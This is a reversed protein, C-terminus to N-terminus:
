QTRIRGCGGSRRKLPYRKGLEYIVLLGAQRDFVLFGVDARGEEGALMHERLLGHGLVNVRGDLQDLPIPRLDLVASPAHGLVVSEELDEFCRTLFGLAQSSDNAELDSM